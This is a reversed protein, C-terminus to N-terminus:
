SKLLKLYAKKVMSWVNASDESYVPDLLEGGDYSWAAINRVGCEAATQVATLIEKETGRPFKMAQIWVHPQKRFRKCTQVTKEAFYGVHKEPDSRKNWRWYPDCGFIDVDKLSAAIDWLREYERIGRLAYITLANTLGLKKAYAMCDRLFDTMTEIRFEQVNADRHLPMKEDYKNIFRKECDPCVCTYVRSVELDLNIFMHPEDWLIVEGGLDRVNVLWEKVFARFAKNNLCAAQVAGGTSLFQWSRRHDLLFKSFSEGGFVGGLGWPDVWVRLGRKRTAAFINEMASKHFYLDRESFTHIVYTCCEAIDALDERAHKLYRNGYYTVGLQYTKSKMNHNGRGSRYATVQVVM